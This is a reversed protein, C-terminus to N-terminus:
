AAIRMPVQAARPLQLSYCAAEPLEIPLPLVDSIEALIQKISLEAVSLQTEAMKHSDAMRDCREEASAIVDSVRQWQYQATANVRPPEPTRLSGKTGAAFRIPRPRQGKLSAKIQQGSGSLLRDLGLRKPINSGTKHLRGTLRAFLARMDRGFNPLLYLGAVAALGWVIWSDLLGSLMNELFHDM